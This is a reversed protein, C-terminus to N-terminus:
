GVELGELQGSASKRRFEIPSRGTWRRFARHFSSPEAFGLLYAVEGVSYDGRQMYARGLEHRTEDLLKDFSTDAAALRRNLTRSSMGLASALSTMDPTGAPFRALLERKVRAAVDDRDLRALYDATLQESALAIAPNATPLPRVLDERRCLLSAYPASWVIPARFWEEFRHASAPAEREVTAELPAFADGFTIRCLKLAGSLVADRRSLPLGARENAYVVVFRLGRPDDRLEGRWLDSLVRTYRALRAMAEGLTTSALWAYGLAHLAVGRVQQGVDLGFCPDGTATEALEFVRRIVRDPVRTEPVHFLAPDCGAQAFLAAADVGRAELARVVNVGPSLLATAHVTSNSREMSDSAERTLLNAHL